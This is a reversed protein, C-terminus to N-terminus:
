WKRVTQVVVVVPVVKGDEAVPYKEKLDLIHTIQLIIPPPPVIGLTTHHWLLNM